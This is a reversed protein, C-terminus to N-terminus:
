LKRDQPGIEQVIGMDNRIENRRSALPDLDNKSNIRKIGRKITHLVFTCESRDGVVKVLTVPYGTIRGACVDVAM